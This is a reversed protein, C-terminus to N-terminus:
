TPLQWRSIFKRTSVQVCVVGTPHISEVALPVSTSLVWKVIQVFEPGNLKYKLGVSDPVPFLIVTVEEPNGVPEVNVTIFLVVGVGWAVKEHFEVPTAGPVYM